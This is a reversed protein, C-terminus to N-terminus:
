MGRIRDTVFSSTTRTARFYRLLSWSRMRTTPSEVWNSPSRAANPGKVERGGSSGERSWAGRYIVGPSAHRVAHDHRASFTRPKPRFSPFGSGFLQEAEYIVPRHNLHGNIAKGREYRHVPLDDDRRALICGFYSTSQRRKGCFVNQHLRQALVGCRTYPPRCQLYDFAVRGRCHCHDGGIMEDGVFGSKAFDQVGRDGHRFVSRKDYHHPEHWESRVGTEPVNTKAVFCTFNLPDLEVVNVFEHLFRVLRSRNLVDFVPSIQPVGPHEHHLCPMCQVKEGAEEGAM